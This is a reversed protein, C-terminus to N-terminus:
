GISINAWVLLSVGVSIALLFVVGALLWRPSPSEGGCPVSSDNGCEGRIFAEIAGYSCISHGWTSETLAARRALM